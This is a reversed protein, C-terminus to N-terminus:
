VKIDYQATRSEAVTTTNGKERRQMGVQTTTFSPGTFHEIVAVMWHFPSYM